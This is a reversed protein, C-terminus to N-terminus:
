KINARANDNVTDWDISCQVGKEISYAFDTLEADSRPERGVTQKFYYADVVAAIISIKM